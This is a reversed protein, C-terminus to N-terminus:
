YGCLSCPARGGVESLHIAKTNRKIGSCMLDSHYRNGSDTIYVTGTGIGGGCIECPYYGSGDKNKMAKVTAASAMKVSPHLHRCDYDRHYVVGSPTVYVIPDDETIVPMAGIGDYGVWAHGYFSTGLIYPRIRMKVPFKLLYRVSLRVVGRDELVSSGSYDLGLRGGAIGGRNSVTEGLHHAVSGVAYADTLLGGPAEPLGREAAYAFSCIESGTEHLAAMIRSQTEVVQIGFLLNLMCFIFLPAVISAEVTMSGRGAASSVRGKEAFSNMKRCPVRRLLKMTKM